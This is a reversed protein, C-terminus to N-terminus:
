CMNVMLLNNVVIFLFLYSCNGRISFHDEDLVLSRHECIFNGQRQEELAEVRRELDAFALQRKKWRQQLHLLKSSCDCHDAM